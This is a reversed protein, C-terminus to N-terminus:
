TKTIPRVFISTPHSDLRIRPPQAVSHDASTPASQPLAPNTGCAGAPRATSGVTLPRPPPPRGRWVVSKVAKKTTRAPMVATLVLM